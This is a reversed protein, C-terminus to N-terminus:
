EEQVGEILMKICDIAILFDISKQPLASRLCRGCPTSTGRIDTNWGHIYNTGHKEDLRVKVICGCRECRIQM